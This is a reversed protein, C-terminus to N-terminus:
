RRPGYGIQQPGALVSDGLAPDATQHGAVAGLPLGRKFRPRATRVVV